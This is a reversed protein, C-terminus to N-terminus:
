PFIQNMTDLSGLLVFLIASRCPLIPFGLSPKFVKRTSLEILLLLISEECALKRFNYQM